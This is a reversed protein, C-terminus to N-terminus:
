FPKGLFSERLSFRTVLKLSEYPKIVILGNEEASKELHFCDIACTQPEIVVFDAGDRRWLMRYKYNEDGEYVLTLCSKEDRIYACEGSVEYLSSLAGSIINYSGSSLMSDRERGSAYKLTPLYKEDRLQERIVPVELMCSGGDGCPSFPVNLTTHFALMFPMNQESGNTIEVSECLGDSDIFYERKLTFAHPFGLYEGKKSSFTFIVRDSELKEVEFARKYLEGHIHCGTSPENIPFSYKRGEFEFEGGRIRNSPFLIPNGFLYVESFLEDEDKPTRLLESHTPEHCLRYCNGGLDSRFYASYGFASIKVNTEIM